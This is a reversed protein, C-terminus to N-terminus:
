TALEQDELLERYPALSPHGRDWLCENLAQVLANHEATSWDATGALYQNLAACPRNGGLALYDAWLHGIPHASLRWAIVTLPCVAASAAVPDKATLAILRLRHSPEVGPVFRAAM